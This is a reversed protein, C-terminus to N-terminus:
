DNQCRCASTLAGCELCVQPSKGAELRAKAETLEEQLVPLTAPDVDGFAQLKEKVMKHDNREKVLASNVRDIDAQTKVGEVATLEFKGNKETYLEGFNEPIDEQKDYITKLKVPM